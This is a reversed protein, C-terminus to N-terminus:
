FDTHARDLRYQLTRSQDWEPDLALRNDGLRLQRRIGDRKESDRSHLLLMSFM